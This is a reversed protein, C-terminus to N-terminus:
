VAHSTTPQTDPRTATAFEQSSSELFPRLNKILHSVTLNGLLARNWSHELKQEIALGRIAFSLVHERVSLM